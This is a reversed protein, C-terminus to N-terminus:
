LCAHRAPFKCLLLLRRLPTAAGTFNVENTGVHVYVNFLHQRQIPRKAPAAAAGCSGHLRALAAASCGDVRLASLPLLGEARKFWLAWVPEQPLEGRTLFMMAVQAPVAQGDPSWVKGDDHM